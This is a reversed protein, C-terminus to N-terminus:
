EKLYAYGGIDFAVPEGQEEMPIFERAEGDFIGNKINEVYDIQLEMEKALFLIGALHMADGSEYAIRAREEIKDKLKEEPYKKLVSIAVQFCAEDVDCLCDLLFDIGPEYGCDNLLKVLEIGNCLTYENAYKNFDLIQALRDADGIANLMVKSLEYKSFVRTYIEPDANGEEDFPEFGYIRGQAYFEDAIKKEWAYRGKAWDAKTLDTAHGGFARNFFTGAKSIKNDRYCGRKKLFERLETRRQKKILDESLPVSRGDLTYLENKNLNYGYILDLPFYQGDIDIWKDAENIRIIESAHGDAYVYPLYKEKETVKDFLEKGFKEGFYPMKRNIYKEELSEPPAQPKRKLQESLDNLQPLIEIELYFAITAVVVFCFVGLAEKGAEELGKYVVMGSIIPLAMFFFIGLYSKVNKLFEQTKGKRFARLKDIFRYLKRMFGIFVEKM